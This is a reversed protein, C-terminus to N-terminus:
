RSSSLKLVGRKPYINKVIARLAKSISYNQRGTVHVKKTTSLKVAELYGKQSKIEVIARTKWSPFKNIRGM